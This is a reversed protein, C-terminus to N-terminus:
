VMHNRKMLEVSAWLNKKAPIKASQIARLVVDNILDHKAIIGSSRKCSFSLLDKANMFKACNCVYPECLNSSLRLGIFIKIVEDSLRLGIAM